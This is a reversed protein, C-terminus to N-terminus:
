GGLSDRGLYDNNALVQITLDFNCVRADECMEINPGPRPCARVFGLPKNDIPRLALNGSRWASKWLVFDEKIFVGPIMLLLESIYHRVLVIRESPLAVHVHRAPRLIPIAGVHARDNSSHLSAPEVGPASPLFNHCRKDRLRFQRDRTGLTELM